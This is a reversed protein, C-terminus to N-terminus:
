IYAIDDFMLTFNLPQSKKTQLFRPDAEPGFKGDGKAVMTPKVGQNSKQQM